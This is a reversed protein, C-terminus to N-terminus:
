KGVFYNSAGAIKLANKCAKFTIFITNYTYITKHEFKYEETNLYSM